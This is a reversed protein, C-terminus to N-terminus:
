LAGGVRRLGIHAPCTYGAGQPHACDDCLPIGCASCHKESAISTCNVGYVSNFVDLAMNGTSTGAKVGCMIPPAKVTRKFVNLLNM